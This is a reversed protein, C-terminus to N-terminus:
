QDGKLKKLEDWLHSQNEGFYGPLSDLLGEAFRCVRLLSDINNRMLVILQNDSDKLNQVEIANKGILLRPIEYQSPPETQSYVVGDDYEWQPPTSKDSLSELQNLINM